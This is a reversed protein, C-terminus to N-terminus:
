KTLTKGRITAGSLAGEELQKRWAIVHARTVIRFDEARSIGVFTM